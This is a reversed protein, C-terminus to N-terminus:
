GNKGSLLFSTLCIRQGICNMKDFYFKECLDKFNNSKPSSTWLNNKSWRLFKSFNETNACTSFLEGAAYEYKYFNDTHGLLKPVLPNLLKARAVRKRVTDKDHFFKIVFEDFIFISENLKDLIEFKDPIIKRARELSSSNGIDLWSDFVRYTFNIGDLLETIVHCDSLSSNTDDYVLKANDWFEKYNEISCIGIYEYDYFLAGKENLCSVLDDIVNFTRYHSSNDASSYGGLWNGDVHEYKNLLISDCAHFIFPEQLEKEAQLISYLLSSGHGEYKDVDVFIFKLNPYALQLYQKVHDGFHGLTIVFEYESPYSEIIYSLAPKKGVRILSKNTYQTLDGLRSGLGSTTILVKM